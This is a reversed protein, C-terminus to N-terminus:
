DCGGRQTVLIKKGIVIAAIAIVLDDAEEM